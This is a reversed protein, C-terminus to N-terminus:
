AQSLLRCRALHAHLLAFNYQKQLNRLHGASTTWYCHHRFFRIQHEYWQADDMSQGLAAMEARLLNSRSECDTRGLVDLDADAMLQELLNRPTQPIRTAMIMGSIAQVQIRSYGCQPLVEAAICVGAAEHEVGQEVFGIDHYYAATRLLLLAEGQVGEMAALREVAPVVEYCTHDYSHYCLRTSLERQLRELAYCKAREFDPQEMSINNGYYTTHAISNRPVYM